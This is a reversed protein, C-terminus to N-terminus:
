ATKSDNANINAQGDASATAEAAEARLAVAQQRTQLISEKLKAFEVEVDIEETEAGERRITLMWDTLKGNTDCWQDYLVDIKDDVTKPVYSGPDPIPFPKSWAAQLEDNVQKLKDLKEQRLRDAERYCASQREYNEILEDRTAQSTKSSEHYAKGLTQVEKMAQVLKRLDSVRVSVMRNDNVVNDLADTATTTSQSSGMKSILAIIKNSPRDLTLTFIVKIDIRVPITKM